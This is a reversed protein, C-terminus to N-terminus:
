ERFSNYKDSRTFIQMTLIALQLAICMDDQHGGMKGTYTRRPKAFLTKPPDVYVMYSRLEQSVQVLAETPPMSTCLLSSSLHLHNASLLQQLAICMVEKSANTTLLGCTGDVGEM